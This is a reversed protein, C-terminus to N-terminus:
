GNLIQLSRRILGGLADAGPLARAAAVARAADRQSYGLNVLASVADPAPDGPSVSGVGPDLRGKLELVIREATKRGVGPTKQIRPFDGGEVAEALQQPSMGSLVALAIRPGVGSIGILREFTHLENRDPFGFLVIADDRVNTHIWLMAREDVEFSEWSRLTTSVLYGVGGADILVSGPDLKQLNGELRGIV